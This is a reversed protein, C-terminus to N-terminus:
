FMCYVRLGLPPGKIKTLLREGEKIQGKGSTNNYM